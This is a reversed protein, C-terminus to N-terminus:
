EGDVVRSQRLVEHFEVLKQLRELRQAPTLGLNKFLLSVDVGYAIAAEWDPGFSPLRERAWESAFGVSEPHELDAM